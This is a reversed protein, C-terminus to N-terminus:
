IALPRTRYLRQNTSTEASKSIPKREPLTKLAKLINRVKSRQQFSVYHNNM